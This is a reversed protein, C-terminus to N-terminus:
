RITTPSGDIMVAESHRVSLHVAGPGFTLAYFETEDVRHALRFGAKELEAQYDAPAPMTDAIAILRKAEEISPMDCHRDPLFGLQN